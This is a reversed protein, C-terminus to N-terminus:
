WYLSNEVNIHNTTTADSLLLSHSLMWVSVPLTATLLRCCAKLFGEGKVLDAVPTLEHTVLATAAHRHIYQCYCAETSAWGFLNLNLFILICNTNKYTINYHKNYIIKRHVEYM